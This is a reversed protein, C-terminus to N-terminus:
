DDTREEWVPRGPGDMDADDEDESVRGNSPSSFDGNRVGDSFREKETNRLYELSGQCPGDFAQKMQKLLDSDGVRERTQHKFHYFCELLEHLTEAYNHPALFPSDCFEFILAPLIGDGFEIRGHASLAEFRWRALELAEAGTLALGFRASTQNCTLLTHATHQLQASSPRPATLEM